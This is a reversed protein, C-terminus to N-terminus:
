PDRGGLCVSASSTGQRVEPDTARAVIRLLAEGRHRFGLCRVCCEWMLRVARRRVMVGADEAARALIDFYQDALEASRSIHRAPTSHM